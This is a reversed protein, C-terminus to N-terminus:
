TVQLFFLRLILHVSNEIVVSCWTSWMVSSLPSISFAQMM